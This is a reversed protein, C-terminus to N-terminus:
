ASESEIEADSVRDNLETAMIAVAQAMSSTSVYLMADVLDQQNSFVRAMDVPSIYDTSPKPMDIKLTRIKTTIPALPTEKGM